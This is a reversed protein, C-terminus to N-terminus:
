LVFRYGVGIETQLHAPRAPDRELKQRLRGVYVRLYTASHSASNGWAARLLQQHTMVRGQNAILVALLRFETATLHLPAGAKLVTHRSLDVAIEGFEIQAAEETSSQRRLLARVRALLEGIGFPKTLYDDAGADLTLIKEAESFRATLILIPARSWLRFNTIFSLGDQDPLGLDLVVLDPALQGAKEMGPTCAAAEEVRLGQRELANRVLRRIQFDDEIVLVRAQPASM